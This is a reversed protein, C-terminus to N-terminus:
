APLSVTVTTGPETSQHLVSRGSITVDVAVRSGKREVVVDFVHGFGHVKRLAMRDWGKPLRPTLDFSRLGTPRIGFMGETIVRCYLASEASLHRQGGEPWAEVPYPVHEGLLRRRAYYQLYPLAHETEGAAFVGRLGYLTSRDWFTEKGAETALGDDTWLKPSFLARITGDKRDFIGMTLPICIWARLTTNGDYYRYTDFGAINAGLHKEIAAHLAEARKRHEETVSKPKGLSGGLMAASRLADYTLASTCLNADGAPFRGELEDHDSAVVGDANIRRRCYELCWEIAPWLEEAIKRDGSALAFRAAGYAIMAADGRDGAGRWTDTAEAIISSPVPTYDPKMYRAFLRYATLASENGGPDGLFPFFPNAYEAQDNAWIAAYYAGGGPAHLLGGKTQFISEAARVKAFAFERSLVPDPCEFILKDWLGAVYDRRAKEEAKPDLRIEPDSAKRGTFILSFRVSKGPEIKFSGSGVVRANLVYEGYVGKASDTRYTTHTGNMEGIEVTRAKDSTNTLTCNEIVAPKTTSPLLTRTLELGSPTRSQITLMGRLTFNVPKEDGIPEGDVTIKPFFEFGFDHALSAHTDNPITRLMPWILIRHLALKGGEGTGYGLIFSVQRGSMEIHDDHSKDGERVTWSIGGDKDIAWRSPQDTASATVSALSLALAVAVISV